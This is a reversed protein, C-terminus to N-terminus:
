SAYMMIALAKKGETWNGEFGTPMLQKLQVVSQMKVYARGKTTKKLNLTTQWECTYKLRFLCETLLSIRVDSFIVKQGVKPKQLYM